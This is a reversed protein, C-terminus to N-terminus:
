GKAAVDELQSGLRQQRAVFKKVANLNLERGLELVEEFSEDTLLDIFDDPRDIYLKIEDGESEAMANVLDKLKRIPVKRVDINQETGDRFSVTHQVKDEIKQIQDM